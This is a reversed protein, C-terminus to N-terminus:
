ARRDGRRRSKHAVRSDVEPNFARKLRQPHAHCATLMIRYDDLDAEPPNTIILDINTRAPRIADNALVQIRLADVAHVEIFDM